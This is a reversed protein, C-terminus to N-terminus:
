IHLGKGAPQAIRGGAGFGKHGGAVDKTPRTMEAKHHALEKLKQENEHSGHKRDKKINDEETHLPPHAHVQEEGPPAPRPYDLTEPATEPEVPSPEAPAHHKPKSSVSLRRGGVKVAPLHQSSIIEAM